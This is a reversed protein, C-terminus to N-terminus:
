DDKIRTTLDHNYVIDRSLKGSQYRDGKEPPRRNEEYAGTGSEPDQINRLRTELGKITAPHTVPSYTKLSRDWTAWSGCRCRGKGSVLTGNYKCVHEESM